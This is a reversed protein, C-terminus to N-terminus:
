SGFGGLPTCSSVNLFRTFFRLRYPNSKENHHLPAAQDLRTQISTFSSDELTEAMQARIPNLDVYVKAQLVAREDLLAQSKFCGEWFRGTCGDVLNAM